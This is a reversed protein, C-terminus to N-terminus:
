NTMKHIFLYEKKVEIEDNAESIVNMKEWMEQQISLKKRLEMIISKNEKM